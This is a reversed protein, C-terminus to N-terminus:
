PDPSTNEDLIKLLKNLLKHISDYVMKYEPLEKGTYTIFLHMGKRRKKLAQELPLKQLRYSEKTLRKIRNRDFARKFNKASVGAGFQLPGTETVVFILRYPVVVFSKGCAFLQEIAKRSKLREAKGLTFKQAM